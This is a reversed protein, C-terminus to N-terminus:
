ARVLAARVLADLASLQLRGEAVEMEVNGTSSVPGAQQEKKLSAARDLENAAAVMRENSLEGSATMCHTEQAQTLARLRTAVADFEACGGGSNVDGLIVGNADLYRQIQRLGALVQTYRLQM